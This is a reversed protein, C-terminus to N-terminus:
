EQNEMKTSEDRGGDKVYDWQRYSGGGRVQQLYNM